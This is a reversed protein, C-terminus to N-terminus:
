NPQVEFAALPKLWNEVRKKNVGLDGYGFRARSYIAITTHEADIEIFKVTIYDPMKLHKSTQVYTMMLSSPLGAMRVTNPQTLVFNDFAQSLVLPRERYIPADQDVAQTALNLPAVRYTNPKGSAPAHLPDLHWVEPDHKATSVFYLVFYGAVIIAAVIFIVAIKM